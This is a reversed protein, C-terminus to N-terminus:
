FCVNVELALVIARSQEGMESDRLIKRRQQAVNEAASLFSSM